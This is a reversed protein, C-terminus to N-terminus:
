GRAEASVRRSWSETSFLSVALEKGSTDIAIEADILNPGIRLGAPAQRYGIAGARGAIVCLALQERLVDDCEKADSTCYYFSFHLFLSQRNPM